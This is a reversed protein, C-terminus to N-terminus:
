QCQLSPTRQKMAPEVQSEFHAQTEQTSVLKQQLSETQEDKKAGEKELRAAAICVVDCWLLQLVCWM